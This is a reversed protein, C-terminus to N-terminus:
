TRSSWAGPREPWRRHHAGSSRAGVPHEHGPRGAPGAPCARGGRCTPDGRARALGLCCVGGVRGGHGGMGWALAHHRDRGGGGAGGHDGPGYRDQPAPASGAAPSRIAIRALLLGLVIELFGALHNPCIFTGSARGHYQAPRDANLVVDAGGSGFQSLGYATEAVALVMVSVVVISRDRQRWLNSAVLFYILTYLAVHFLELRSEYEIPSTVYRAAAYLAFAAVAWHMPSRLWSVQKWLLLKAAWLLALLAALAYLPGAYEATIAGFPVTALVLCVVVGAVLSGNLLNKM